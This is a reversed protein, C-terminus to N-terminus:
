DVDKILDAIKAIVGASTIVIFYSFLVKWFTTGSIMDPFWIHGLIILSLVLTTLVLIYLSWKPLNKFKKFMSQGHHTKV